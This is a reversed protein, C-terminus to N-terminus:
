LDGEAPKATYAREYAESYVREYGESFRYAGSLDERSTARSVNVILGAMIMTTVLSSGGASFFPLPSGTAPLAGATVAINLLAQASVMTVLACGMLRTFTKGSNVAAKYGRITFVAFLVCFLLVGLFGMEEAFSSFIFDSHIEPVSSIKRTGQGM